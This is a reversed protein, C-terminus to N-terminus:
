YYKRATWLEPAPLTEVADFPPPKTRHPTSYTLVPTTLSLPVLRKYIVGAIKKLGHTVHYDFLDAILANGM